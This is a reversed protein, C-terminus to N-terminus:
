RLATIIREVTTTFPNPVALENTSRLYNVVNKEQQWRKTGKRAISLTIPYAATVPIGKVECWQKIANLPPPKGPARGVVRFYSNPATNNLTVAISSLGLAKTVTARVQWSTALQGTARPSSAKLEKETVRVERKVIAGINNVQADIPEVLYAQTGKLQGKGVLLSPRKILPLPM